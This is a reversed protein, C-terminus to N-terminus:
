STTTPSVLTTDAADLLRALLAAERREVLENIWYEENSSLPKAFAVTVAYRLDTHEPNDFIEAIRDGFTEIIDERLQCLDRQLSAAAELRLSQTLEEITM